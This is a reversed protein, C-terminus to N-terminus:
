NRLSRYANWKDKAENVYIKTQKRNGGVDQAQYIEERVPNMRWGLSEGRPSGSMETVHARRRNM